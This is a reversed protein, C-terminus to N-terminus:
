KVNVNKNLAVYADDTIWTGDAQKLQCDGFFSWRVAMGSDAWQAHCTLREIGCTVGTVIGVLLLVALLIAQVAFFFDSM